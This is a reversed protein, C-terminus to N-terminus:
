AIKRAAKEASMALFMGDNKETMPTKIFGPCITTFAVGKGRLQIRLSEMYANVAAKSACYAASSPLGKYAALSSVAAIQGSGRKLMAPLVGEIAYMVGFLNVRVVTESGAINLDDITNTAGVGANAILVDAPGLKAELSRIAEILPFRECVDAPVYNATGGSSRIEECLQRLQNERRALLGLKAGRSALEKALARGIGSSAGTIIVVRNQFGMRKGKLISRFM